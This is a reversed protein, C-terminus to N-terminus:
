YLTEKLMLLNIKPKMIKMPKFQEKQSSFRILKDKIDETASGIWQKEGYLDNGNENFPESAAGFPISAALFVVIRLEVGIFSM